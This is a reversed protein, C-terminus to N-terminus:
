LDDAELLMKRRPAPIREHAGVLRHLCDVADIEEDPRPFHNGYDAFGPQPFDVRPRRTM